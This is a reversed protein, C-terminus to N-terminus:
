CVDKDVIASFGPLSSSRRFSIEALVLQQLESARVRGAQRLQDQFTRLAPGNVFNISAVAKLLDDDVFKRRMARDVLFYYGIAGVQLVQAAVFSWFIPSSDPWRSSAYHALGFTVSAILVYLTAWPLEGYRMKQTMKAIAHLKKIEDTDTM